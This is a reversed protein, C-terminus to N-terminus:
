SIGNRIGSINLVYDDFDQKKTKQHNNLKKGLWLNVM